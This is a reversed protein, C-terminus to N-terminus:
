KRGAETAVVYFFIMYRTFIPDNLLHARCV